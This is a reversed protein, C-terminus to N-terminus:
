GKGSIITEGMYLYYGAATFATFYVALAPFVWPLGLTCVFASSV